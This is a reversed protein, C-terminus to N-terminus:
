VNNPTKDNNPLSSRAKTTVSSIPLRSSHYFFVKLATGMMREKFLEFRFLDKKKFTSAYSLFNVMYMLFVKECPPPLKSEPM